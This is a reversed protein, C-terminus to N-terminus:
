IFFYKRIIHCIVLWTVWFLPSVNLQLCYNTIDKHFYIAEIFLLFFPKKYSLNNLLLKLYCLVIVTCFFHQKKKKVSFCIDGMAARRGGGM